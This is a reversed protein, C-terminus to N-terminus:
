QYKEVAMETVSAYFIENKLERLRQFIERLSPDEPDLTGLHYADIDIYLSMLNPDIQPELAQVVIAAADRKQDAIHVRSLFDLVTSSVPQPLFPPAELFDGIKQNGGVQMRNIYRVAIRTLQVPKAVALYVNWLRFAEGFVADWTTYRAVKSFTFGDTRFQVIESEASYKQGLETQSQAPSLMKGRDIGFRAEILNISESKSYKKGISATLDSFTGPQVSPNPPVRFDIM